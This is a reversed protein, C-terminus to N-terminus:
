SAKVCTESQISPLIFRGLSRCISCIIFFRVTFLTFYILCLWVIVKVFRVNPLLNFTKGVTSKAISVVSAGGGGGGMNSASASAISGGTVSAGGFHGQQTVAASSASSSPSSDKIAFPGETSVNFLLRAETPNTITISKHCFDAAKVGKSFLVTAAAKLNLAFLDSAITPALPAELTNKDIMITPQLFVGELLLTLTFRNSGPPLATKSASPTIMHGMPISKVGGGGGAVSNVSHDDGDDHAAAISNAASPVNSLVNDSFLVSGTLQALEKGLNCTRFLTVTFRQKGYPPITATEPEIKFPSDKAIDEWFQFVPHVRRQDDVRLSLKIPGNTKSALSKVQWKVKGNKSGHNKVFFERVLPESNVCTYGLQLLQKGILGPEGKSVVTMGVTDKEVVIPCGIVSMTIPLLYTHTVTGETVLCEIEDDYCGPIDNFASITVVQVGWPALTGEMIDLHYSAGLGSHLFKRDEQKQVTFGIYEKGADSKFKNTGSEHPALILDSREVTSATVISAASENSSPWRKVKEVVKFKRASLRFPAPIASFNRVVFRVTRRQYLPVADGIVMPQIPRPDPPKEHNPFQTETPAALPAPPTVGEPLNRFELQIGKSIAKVVFALPIQAGFIKNSIIDDIMGTAIATFTCLIDIKQKAELPGKYKDYTLKYLSSDGGPRALKYMTPLNCMNEISITFQVPMGVYVQGLNNTLPYMKTKPAQVEGRLNLFQSMIEIKGTVDFVRSEILGRIRQPIKGAKCIINVSFTQHPEVVGSPPDITVVANKLEIKFDTSTANSEGGVSFDDSRASSARSLTDRQTNQRSLNKVSTSERHSNQSSTKGDQDTVSNSSKGGANIDVHLQPKMIFMAPVDGENIFSIVKSGDGGVGVLGMDIEAANFRLRSGGVEVNVILQDITTFASKPVLPLFVRYRGINHVAISFQVTVESQPMLLVREYEPVFTILEDQPLINAQSLTEDYADLTSNSPMTEVRLQALDLEVEATTTSANILKFSGQMAKGIPLHGPLEVRPPSLQISQAKGEGYVAIQLGALHNLACEKLYDVAEHKVKDDLVHCIVDGLLLVANDVDVWIEAMMERESPHFERLTPVQIILEPGVADPDYSSDSHLEQPPDVIRSVKLPAIQLPPDIEGDETDTIWDYVQLYLTVGDISPAISSSTVSNVSGVDAATDVSSNDDVTVKDANRIGDVHHLLKRVWKSIRRFEYESVDVEEAHNMVQSIVLHVLTQLNLLNKETAIVGSTRVHEEVQAPNGMEELWSRAKPFPGHGEIRLKELCDEQTPGPLAALPISKIMMVARMSSTSLDAPSFRIDFREAGEGPMVGRAPSIEFVGLPGGVARNQVADATTGREGTGEMSVHLSKLLDRQAATGGGRGGEGDFDDGIPLLEVGNLDNELMQSQKMAELKERDYIQRQGQAHLSLPACKMDVWIWEYEVPLGTDNVVQLQQVQESGVFASSFFMDQFVAPDASDFEVTNLESIAVDLQKSKGRLSFTRVQGNDCTMYFVEQYARLERPVFEITIEVADGRMLTFETPYLTFSQVRLCDPGSPPVDEAYSDLVSGAAEAVSADGLGMANYQEVTLLKFRGGGGSNLCNFSLRQADGVLCCGVDLISPISLQPPERQARVHVDFSGSETDVHIEDVFDGLTSPFFTVVTTVNMGPAVMGASSNTPYKLPAIAFAANKPPLVRFTRTVASINRFSLTQSYKEGVEYNTFFLSSPEPRFLPNDTLKAPKGYKKKSSSAAESNSHLAKSDVSAATSRSGRGGGGGRELSSAAVSGEEGQNPGAVVTGEEGGDPAFHSRPKILMKTVGGPDNRPNRLYNLKHNISKLVEENALREPASLVNKKRKPAKKQDASASMELERRQTKVLTQSSITEAFREGVREQRVATSTTKMLYNPMDPVAESRKRDNQLKREEALESIPLNGTRRLFNTKNQDILTKAVLLTPAFDSFESLVEEDLQLKTKLSPIHQGIIIGKKKLTEEEEEESIRAKGRQVNLYDLLQSADENKKLVKGNIADIKEQMTQAIM